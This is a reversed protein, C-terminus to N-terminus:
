IEDETLLPFTSAFFIFDRAIGLALLMTLISSKGVTLTSHMKRHLFEECADYYGAVVLDLQFITFSHLHSVFRLDRSKAGAV